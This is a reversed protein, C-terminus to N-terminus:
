FGTFGGWLGRQLLYTRWTLALFVLLGELPLQLLLCASFHHLSWCCCDRRRCGLASPFGLFWAVACSVLYPWYRSGGTTGHWRVLLRSRKHPSAVLHRLVRSPPRIVASPSTHTNTHTHKHTNKNKKEAGKRHLIQRESWSHSQEGYGTRENSFCNRPGKWPWATLCWIPFFAPGM